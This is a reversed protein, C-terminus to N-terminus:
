HRHHFFYIPIPLPVDQFSTARQGSYGPEIPIQCQQNSLLPSFQLVWLFVERLLSSFWCCLWGVHHRTWPSFKPWLPLLHTNEGSCWGAGGLIVCFLVAMVDWCFLTRWTESPWQDVNHDCFSSLFLSPDLVTSVWECGEKRRGKRYM